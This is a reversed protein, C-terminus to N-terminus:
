DTLSFEIGSVLNDAVKFNVFRVDGNKETIAGSIANKYGLFNTFNATIIPNTHFPDTLNSPDYWLPECPYTRPILGHFIRL